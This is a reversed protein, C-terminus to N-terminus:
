QAHGTPSIAERRAFSNESVPILMFILLLVTAGAKMGGIKFIKQDRYL